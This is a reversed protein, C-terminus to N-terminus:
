EGEDLEALLSNLENLGPRYMMKFYIENGIIVGIEGLAILKALSPWANAFTFGPRDFTGIGYYMTLMVLPLAVIVAVRTHWMYSKLVAMKARTTQLVSGAGEHSQSASLRRLERIYWVCLITVLIAAFILKPYFFVPIFCAATVIGQVWTEIQANRRLRKQWNDAMQRLRSLQMDPLGAGTQWITKMDESNM